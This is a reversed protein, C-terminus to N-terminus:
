RTLLAQKIKDVNVHRIYAPINKYLEHYGYEGQILEDIADEKTWGQFVIRYMACILGTRDSGHWCHILIPGGSQKIITLAEIVKDDTIEGAEMKVRFLKLDTGEAGRDSHYDRLNLVNPIGLRELERFGKQNPQASRYVKEDLQYFNKLAPSLVPKAWKAPRADTVFASLTSVLLTLALLNIKLITSNTRM